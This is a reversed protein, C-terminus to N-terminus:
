TELVGRLIRVLRLLVIIEIIEMRGRIELVELRKKGLKKPVMELVDTVILKVTMKM